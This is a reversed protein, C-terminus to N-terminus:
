RSSPSRELAIISATWHRSCLLPWQRALFCSSASPSSFSFPFLLLPLPSLLSPSSMILGRSIGDILDFSSGALICIPLAVVNIM